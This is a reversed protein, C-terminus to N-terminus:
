QGLPVDFEALRGFLGGDTLDGLLRSQLATHQGREAADVVPEHGLAPAHVLCHVMVQHSEQAAFEGVVVDLDGFHRPHRQPLQRGAEGVGVLALEGLHGAFEDVFQVGITRAGQRRQRAGRRAAPWLLAAEEQM